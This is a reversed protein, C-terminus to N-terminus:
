VCKINVVIQHTKTPEREVGNKMLKKKKTHHVNISYINIYDIKLYIDYLEHMDFLSIRKLFCVFM